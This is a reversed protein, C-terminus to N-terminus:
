SFFAGAVFFASTDGAPDIFVDNFFSLPPDLRVRLDHLLAFFQDLVGKAGDLVPPILTM